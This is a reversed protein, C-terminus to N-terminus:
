FQINILYNYKTKTKWVFKNLKKIIWVIAATTVSLWVCESNLVLLFTLNAVSESYLFGNEISKKKTCKHAHM